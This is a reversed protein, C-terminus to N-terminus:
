TAAAGVLDLWYEANSRLITEGQEATIDSRAEFDALTCRQLQAAEMTKHPWDSSYVINRAGVRDIVDALGADDPFTSIFVQRAFLESPKLDSDPRASEYREGIHDLLELWGPLWSLHAEFLGVRLNPHHPIVGGLIVDMVALQPEVTHACLYLFRNAGGYRSLGVTNPGAGVASEHFCMVIGLDEMAAWMQDFHADSWPINDPPTPNAFVMNLGLNQRAYTMEEIAQDPHNFPALMAPRLRRRDASAFDHAFRNYARALAGALEPDDVGSFGVMALTPFIVHVDTRQSDMFKLRGVPDMAVTKGELLPGYITEDPGYTRALGPHHSASPYIHEGVQVLLRGDADEVFRPVRDRFAPDVYESWLAIPEWYHTDCDVAIATETDNM